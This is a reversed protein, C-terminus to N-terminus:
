RRFRFRFVPECCGTARCWDDCWWDAGAACSAQIRPWSGAVMRDRDRGRNSCQYGSGAGAHEHEGACFCIASNWYDRSFSCGAEVVRHFDDRRLDPDMSSVAPFDDWRLDPDMSSVAPFDDRRLDPDMSSVAPFDDRRLDPDMSSVAIHSGIIAGLQSVSSWTVFLRVDCNGDCWIHRIEVYTAVGTAIGVM